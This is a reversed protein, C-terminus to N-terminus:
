TVNNAVNMRSMEVEVLANGTQQRTRQTSCFEGATTKKM